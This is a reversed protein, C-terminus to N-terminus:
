LFRVCIYLDFAPPNQRRRGPSISVHRGLDRRVPTRLQWKWVVGGGGVEGGVQYGAPQMGLIVGKKTM